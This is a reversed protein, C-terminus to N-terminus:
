ARDKLARWFANAEDIRECIPLGYPCKIECEGCQICDKAAEMARAIGGGLVRELPMRKVFSEFTLVVSIPIEQPCPQCYNCRRCFRTGLEQKIRAMEAEESASMKAPGEMVTVIEDIEETQQIGVVPIVNAFRRLYKFAITADELMGGGMPKMAIFGVDHEEAVPILKEAEENAVFNFPFMITEFHGSRTAELAIDLSHSTIGIHRVKGAAQAKRVVELPGGPALTKEYNEESSV